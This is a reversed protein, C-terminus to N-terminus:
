PLGYVAFAAWYVPSRWRGEARMSRQATRLAAAPPVGSTLLARYFRKMLEATPQDKVDWYSAVIRPTGGNMFGSVLGVIGEGRLERGAATRCASLVVLDSAGHLLYLDPVRLFGDVPRGRRNVLSLVIGSRDPHRANVLAHTAFHLVRYQRLDERLLMGRSAEFDLAERAQGPLLAAIAHAEERTAPLRRLEHLGSEAASRALDPDRAVDRTERASRPGIVRPDDAAFVPDAFIAVRTPAAARTAAGHRLLVLASASPAMTIEAQDILPRGGAALAAFPVYFLAGDPVIILREIGPPLPRLIMSSLAAISVEIQRQKTRQDGQALLAHLTVAATEITARTPLPFAEIGERTLVWAYSKGDGLFYELVATHDDLLGTRIQEASLADANRAEALAPYRAAIEAEVEHLERTASEVDTALPTSAAGPATDLKRQMLEIGDRLEDERTFVSREGAGEARALAERVADLTLRARAHESASFAALGAGTQMLVNVYHEYHGTMNAFLSSRFRKASLHRRGAEVIEIVEAMDQTAEPFRQLAEFARARRSLSFLYSWKAGRSRRINLAETHRAVAEEPRGLFTLSVGMHDLIDAEPGRLGYARVIPLAENEFRLAKEFQALSNWTMGLNMLTLAEEKRNGAARHMALSAEYSRVAGRFDHRAFHIWGIQFLAVGELTRDGSERAIRLAQRDAAEGASLDGLVQHLLGIANLTSGELPRNNM